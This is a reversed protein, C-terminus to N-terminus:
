GKFFAVAVPDNPDIDLVTRFWGAAEDHRGQREAVIGLNSLIKVNDSDMALARQLSDKAKDLQGLQMQCIAIENQIDPINGKAERDHEAFELSKRFAAHGDEWRGLERLAWGLVFWGNWVMPHRRLFDRIEPLSEEAKGDQVLDLARLFSSDDLGRDVIQALLAAAKDHKEGVPSLDLYEELCERARGYEKADMFFLGANLSAEVPREPMSLLKEYAERAENWVKDQAELHGERSLTEAKGELILAHDLAMEPSGPSLAELLSIIDLAMDYEANKAKIIAANSLETRIEPRVQLVFARYYNAWEDSIEPWDEDGEDNNAEARIV